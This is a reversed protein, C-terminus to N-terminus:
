GLGLCLWARRIIFKLQNLTRIEKILSFLIKPRAYFNRYAAHQLENLRSRSIGKPCYPHKTQFMQQWDPESIEGSKRLSDYVETGPLPLFNYFAARTLPLSQSFRLTSLIDEETEGPFGIIFFGNVDFGAKKILNVQKRIKDVSLGKKMAKLMRDSGSEIGVSIYYCGSKKMLRLIEEDLTDLRIGNPCCWWIKFNRNIIENCFNQIYNRDLTFNDDLVHFERVGYKNYLAEIENLVDKLSRRRIKEGSITKGACFTCQYPCGRTIVIPAVPLKRFVVGQPAEPYSNPDMLDWAVPSLSDLDENFVCENVVVSGDKKRWILGPIKKFEDEPLVSVGKNKEILKIFQPLSLEAEGNFAFDALPIHRLCDERTGSPHPGGVVVIISRNFSKICSIWENIAGVDHSFIQFGIIDPSYKKVYDLFKDLSLDEKLCDLVAVEGVNAKRVATALYGLGVPPMVNLVMNKPLGPRALLTKM